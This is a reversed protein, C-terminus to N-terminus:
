AIRDGPPKDPNSEAPVTVLRGQPDMALAKRPLDPRFDAATSVYERIADRTQPDMQRLAAITADRKEEDSEFTHALLEYGEQDTLVREPECGHPCRMSEVVGWLRCLLPRISYVTCRGNLSLHVCVMSGDSRTEAGKGSRAKLLDDEEPSVGIPGCSNSCKGQCAIGPVRDWLERLEPSPRPPATRTKRKAM